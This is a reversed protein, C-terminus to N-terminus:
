TAAVTISNSKASNATAGNTGTAVARFKQAGAAAAFSLTVTDGSVSVDTPTIATGWTSGDDTTPQVVYTWPDGTGTPTTFALTAHLATTATAVPTAGGFVPLGGLATWGAGGWIRYKLVPQYVGDQVAMCRQDPTPLFTLEAAESDKKDMKSNGLDDLKCYSVVDCSYIPLGNWDRKRFFLFQRAPNAGTLLQGFVAGLQGPDEMLSNGDADVYPRRDRLRQVWPSGTDVPSLGFPESQETLDSDYPYIDQLIMFHDNTVKPKWAPGDGDKQPGLHVFGENAETNTVITGTNNDRVIAFLDGRIKNDVTYPSWRVSGDPNHPSLDTALGRADRVAVAVATGRRLFEPARFNLGAGVWDTGEEVQAM